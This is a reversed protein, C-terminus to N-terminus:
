RHQVLERDIQRMAEELIGKVDAGEIDLNQAQFLRIDPIGFFTEALLKVYAYGENQSGIVPGGSTSVYILQEAKCLLRPIGQEDYCFTIGNVMIHELYAKLSSPFSLDWYPAAIVIIDADAFDKAYRFEPGSFDQKEVCLSRADLTASTLPLFEPAGTCVERVEGELKDLVRQALIRTRSEPRICSNVLLIQKESVDM